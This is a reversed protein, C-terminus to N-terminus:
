LDNFIIGSKIKKWHKFICFGMYKISEIEEQNQKEPSVQRNSNSIWRKHDKLVTKPHRCSPERFVFIKVKITLSIAGRTRKRLGLVIEKVLKFCYHPKIISRLFNLIAKCSYSCLM